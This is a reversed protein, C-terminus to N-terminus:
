KGADYLAILQDVATTFLSHVGLIKDKDGGDGLNDLEWATRVVDNVAGTAIRRQPERLEKLHAELAIAADKTRLAPVWILPLKGQDLLDKVEASSKKLEEVIGKANDPMPAIEIM